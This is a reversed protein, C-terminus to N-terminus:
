GEVGPLRVGLGPEGARVGEGGGEGSGDGEEDGGGELPGASGESGGRIM